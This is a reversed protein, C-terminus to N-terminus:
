LLVYALALLLALDAGVRYLLYLLGGLALREGDWGTMLGHLLDSLEGPLLPPPPAPPPPDPHPPHDPHQPAPRPPRDPRAPQPAPRPPEPPPFPRAQRQMERARRIADQRMADFARDDPM